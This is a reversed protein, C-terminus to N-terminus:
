SKHIYNFMVFFIKGVQSSHNRHGDKYAPSLTTTLSTTFTTTLSTTLTTTLLSSLDSPDSPSTPPSAASGAVHRRRRVAPKRYLHSEVPKENVKVAQSPTDSPGSGLLTSQGGRIAEGIGGEQELRQKLVVLKQIDCQQPDHLSSNLIDLLRRVLDEMTVSAERSGREGGANPEVEEVVVGQRRKKPIAGQSAQGSQGAPQQLAMACPESPSEPSSRIVNWSDDESNQSSHRRQNSRESPARAVDAFESDSDSHSFLWDLGPSSSRSEMNDGVLLEQSNRVNRTRLEDCVLPPEDGTHQPITSTEEMDLVVEERSSRHHTLELGECSANKKSGGGEDCNGNGSCKSNVNDCDLNGLSQRHLSFQDAVSSLTEDSSSSMKVVSLTDSSSEDDAYINEFTLTCVKFNDGEVKPKDRFKAIASSSRFVLPQYARGSNRPTPALRTNGSRVRRGGSSKGELSQHRTLLPSHSGKTPGEEDTEGESCFFLFYVEYKM